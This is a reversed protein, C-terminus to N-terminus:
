LGGTRWSLEGGVGCGRFGGGAGSGGGGGEVWPRRMRFFPIFLFYYIWIAFHCSFLLIVENREFCVTRGVLTPDIHRMIEARRSTAISCGQFLIDAM